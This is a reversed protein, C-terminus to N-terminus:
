KRIDGVMRKWFVIILFTGTISSIMGFVVYNWFEPTIIFIFYYNGNQEFSMNYQTGTYFGWSNSTFSIQMPVSNAITDMQSATIIQTSQCKHYGEDTVQCFKKDFNTMEVLINKALGSKINDINVLHATRPEPMDGYLVQVNTTYSYLIFAITIVMINLGLIILLFLATSKLSTGNKSENQFQEKIDPKLLYYVIIGPLVSFVVYLPNKALVVVLLNFVSQVSMLALVIKRAWDQKKMLGLLSISAMVGISITALSEISSRLPVNNSFLPTAWNVIHFFTSGIPSIYHNLLGLDHIYRGFHLDTFFLPYIITLASFIGFYILVYVIGTRPKM